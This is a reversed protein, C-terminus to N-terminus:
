TKVLKANITVIKESARRNALYTACEKFSTYQRHYAACTCNDSCNACNIIRKTLTNKKPGKPVVKYDPEPM